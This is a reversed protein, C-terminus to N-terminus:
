YNIKIITLILEKKKFHFVLRSFLIERMVSTDNYLFFTSTKLDILDTSMDIMVPYKWVGM